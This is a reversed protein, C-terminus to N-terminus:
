IAREPTFFAVVILRGTEPTDGFANFPYRSHFLASEYILARNFKTPYYDRLTWCGEDNWDRVVQEFLWEDGTDIRETGTKKHTWFGTGSPGDCLFHVLAHTGWGLDSHIAANPPEDNYNLRFAMGLMDVPGFLGEIMARIGPIEMPLVRKYVQGDPGQWDIFKSRLALERLENPQPHFDEIVYPKNKSSVKTM